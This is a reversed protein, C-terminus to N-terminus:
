AKKVSRGPFLVRVIRKRFFLMTCVLGGLCLVVKCTIPAKKHILQASQTLPELSPLTIYHKAKTLLLQANHTMTEVSPLTIYQKWAALLLLIALLTLLVFTTLRSCRLSRAFLRMKDKLLALRSPSRLNEPQLTKDKAGQDKSSKLNENSKKGLDGNKVPARIAPSEARSRVADVPAM